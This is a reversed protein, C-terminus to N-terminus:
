SIIILNLMIKDFSFLMSLWSAYHLHCCFIFSFMVLMILMPDHVLVNDFLIVISAFIWMMSSYSILIFV